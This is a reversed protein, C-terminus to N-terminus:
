QTVRHEQDVPEMDGGTLMDAALLRQSSLFRVLTERDDLHARVDLELTATGTWGSRVVHGLFARLPLTGEGIAAHSDRGNGLNDSIHLHVVRDRLKDWAAFLDIGAVAFHSTDFVVHDYVLLDDPSVAVSFNRGAVPFLNEMGFQTTYNEFEGPAEETLWRRAGFEFTFPAHAVMLSAGLEDAFELSRRTKEMYGMGMVNRLLLMYPGHVVPVQLGTADALELVRDAARTEAGQSIVLEAGDFGADAIAEMVFALPSLLLPGTSALLRVPNPTM